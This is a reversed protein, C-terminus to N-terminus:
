IKSSLIEKNCESLSLKEDEYDSEKADSSYKSLESVLNIEKAEVKHLLDIDALAADAIDDLNIKEGTLIDPYLNMYVLKVLDDQDFFNKSHTSNLFFM